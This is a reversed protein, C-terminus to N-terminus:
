RSRQPTQPVQARRAPTEMAGADSTAGADVGAGLRSMGSSPGAGLVRLRRGCALGIGHGLGGGLRLARGRRRVKRRRLRYVDAWLIVLRGGANGLLGVGWVGAIGSDFASVSVTERHCLRFRRQRRQALSLSGPEVMLKSGRVSSRM